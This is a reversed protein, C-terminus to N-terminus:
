PRGSLARGCGDCDGRRQGLNRPAGSVRPPSRRAGLRLDRRPKGPRFAGAVTWGAGGWGAGARRADRAAIARLVTDVTRRGAAHTTAYRRLNVAELEPWAADYTVLRTGTEVVLAAIEVRRLGAVAQSMEEMSREGVIAEEAALTISVMGNCDRLPTCVPLMRAEFESDGYPRLNLNKVVRSSGEIAVKSRCCAANVLIGHLADIEGTRIVACDGPEIRVGRMAMFSNRYEVVKGPRGADDALHVNRFTKLPFTVRVPRYAIRAAGRLFALITTGIIASLQPGPHSGDAYLSAVTAGDRAALEAVLDRVDLYFYANRRIIAHYVSLLPNASAIDDPPILVFIPQCGNKRAKHGIWDVWQMIQYLDLASWALASHDVVCLDIICFDSTAFFDDDAFYPGIVSPSAGLRGLRTVIIGPDNLVAYLFGDRKISNSQGLIACRLEM